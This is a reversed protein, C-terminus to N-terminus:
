AAKQSRRCFLGTRDFTRLYKRSDDGKAVWVVYISIGQPSRAERESFMPIDTDWQDVVSWCISADKEKGAKILVERAEHARDFLESSVQDLDSLETYGDTKLEALLELVAEGGENDPPIAQSLPEVEEHFFRLADEVSMGAKAKTEAVAVIAQASITM